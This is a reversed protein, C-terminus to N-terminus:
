QLLKRTQYKDTLVRDAAAILVAVEVYIMDIEAVSIVISGKIVAGVDLLRDLLDCLGDVDQGNNM